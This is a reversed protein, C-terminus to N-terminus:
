FSLALSDKNQRFPEWYEDETLFTNHQTLYKNPNELLDNIMVEINEIQDYRIRLLPINNSEAFDNKVTDSYHRKLFNEFTRYFINVFKFHQEGDFEIFSHIRKNQILAFDPRMRSIANSSFRLGIEEYEKQLNKVFNKYQKKIGLEIFITKITKNHFYCIGYRDLIEKIKNEGFSMKSQYTVASFLDWGSRLRFRVLEYDVGYFDTVAKLSEFSSGDPLIQPNKKGKTEGTARELAEKQSMNQNIRIYYQKSTKNYARCMEEKTPFINQNHDMVLNRSKRNKNIINKDKHKEYYEQTHNVSYVLEEPSKDPNKKRRTRYTHPDINHDRCMARESTYIVGNKFRILKNKNNMNIKGKKMFSFNYKGLKFLQFILFLVKNLHKIRGFCSDFREFWWM